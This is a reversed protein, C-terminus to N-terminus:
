VILITILRKDDYDAWKSGNLQKKVYLKYINIFKLLHKKLKYVSEEIPTLNINERPLFIKHVVTVWFNQSKVQIENSDADCPDVIDPRCSAGDINSSFYLKFWKGALTFPKYPM